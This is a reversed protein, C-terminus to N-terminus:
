PFRAGPLPGLGASDHEGAAVRSVASLYGPVLPLVCPSLFSVVGAALAALIGVGATPDTSLAASIVAMWPVQPHSGSGKKCQGAPRPLSGRMSSLASTRLQVKFFDGSGELVCPKISM